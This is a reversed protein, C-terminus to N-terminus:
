VKESFKVWMHTVLPSPPMPLPRPPAMHPGMPPGTQCARTASRVGEESRAFIMPKMPVIPLMTLVGAEQTPPYMYSFREGAKGKLALKMNSVIPVTIKM